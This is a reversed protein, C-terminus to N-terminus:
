WKSYGNFKIIEEAVSDFVSPVGSNNYEADTVGCQQAFLAKEVDKKRQAEDFKPANPGCTM